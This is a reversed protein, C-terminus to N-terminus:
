RNLVYIYICPTEWTTNTTFLGGALAPSMLSGRSVSVVVSELIGALLIGHVSSGPPSCDVPICLTPCLQLSKVHMYTDTGWVGLRDRGEGDKREPWWLEIELDTFKNRNQLHTWKYRLFFNKKKAYLHYWIISTKTQSSWKTHDDGPGGDM